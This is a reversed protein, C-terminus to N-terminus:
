VKETTELLDIMQKPQKIYLTKLIKIAEASLENRMPVRYNLHFFVTIQVQELEQQIHHWSIGRKKEAIRQILLALVCIKVHAEIRRSAWHSMPTMKVRTRKLSCFCREITMLGKYGRAADELNITDDNTEIM